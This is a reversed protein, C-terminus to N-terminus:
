NSPSTMAWSDSLGAFQPISFSQTKAVFPYLHATFPSCKALVFLCIKQYKKSPKKGRTLVRNSRNSDPSASVSWSITYTKVLYRLNTLNAM